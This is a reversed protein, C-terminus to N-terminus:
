STLSPSTRCKRNLAQPQAPARLLAPAPLPDPDALAEVRCPRVRIKGASATTEAQGCPRWTPCVHAGTRDTVPGASSHQRRRPLPPLRAHCPSRNGPPLGATRDVGLTGASPCRARLVARVRDSTGHDVPPCAAVSVEGAIGGRAPDQEQKKRRSLPRGSNRRFTAGKALNARTERPKRSSSGAASVHGLPRLCVGALPAPGFPDRPNSDRRRRWVKKMEGTLRGRRSFARRAQARERALFM